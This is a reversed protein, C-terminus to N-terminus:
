LITREVSASPGTPYWRGHESLCEQQECVGSEEIWLTTCLHANAAGTPPYEKTIRLDTVQSDDGIIRADTLADLINRALKDVDGSSRTIPSARRVSKPRPVVCRVLVTVPVGVLTQWGRLDREQAAALVIAERWQKSGAVQEILRGHGIHRLSGKPKPAGPVTVTLKV